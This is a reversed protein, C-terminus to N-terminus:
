EDGPALSPRACRVPRGRGENVVDTGSFTGSWAPLIGIRWRGRGGAEGRWPARPQDGSSPVM